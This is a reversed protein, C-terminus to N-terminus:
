LQHFIGDINPHHIMLSNMVSLVSLQRSNAPCLSLTVQRSTLSETISEDDLSLCAAYGNWEDM